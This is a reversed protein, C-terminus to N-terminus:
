LVRKFDRGCGRQEASPPPSLPFFILHIRYAIEGKGNGEMCFASINSPSKLLTLKQEQACWFCYSQVWLRPSPYMPTSCLCNVISEQFIKRELREARPPHSLFFLLCKKQRVRERSGTRNCQKRHRSSCVAQEKSIVKCDGHKTPLCSNKQPPSCFFVRWAYTLTYQNYHLCM